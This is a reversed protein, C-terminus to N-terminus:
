CNSGSPPVRAGKLYALCSLANVPMVDDILVCHWEGARCLKVQYVGAHTHEKTLLINRINAPEEALASMACVFWCNGVHGQRIDDPRPEDRIVVWPVNSWQLTVDDRIGPIDGPRMWGSPRLATELKNSESRCHGCTIMVDRMSPDTM